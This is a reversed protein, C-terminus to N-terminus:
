KTKTGIIFPQGSADASLTFKQHIGQKIEVALSYTSCRSHCNDVSFNYNGPALQYNAIDNRSFEGVKAQNIYFNTQCGETNNIANTKSSLKTDRMVEIIPHNNGDQVAYVDHNVTSTCGFLVLAIPVISLCKGLPFFVSYQM